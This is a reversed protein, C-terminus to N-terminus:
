RAIGQQASVRQELQENNEWLEQFDTRTIEHRGFYSKEFATVTMRLRDGLQRDAGRSERVYRGNTKGRTLRLSGAQDLMLLQHGFLLIIAQEFQGEGMLREAETRLNVDTRRLEVPLHKMREIMQEDPADKSIKAADKPKGLDIETKSFAYVILGVAVVILLALLMWGFVNGITMDSGFLGTGAGTNATGGKTTKTNTTKDAAPKALKKPKPLWRSQRNVSDDIRANVTVPVLSGSEANYWPTSSLAKASPTAATTEDALVQTSLVLM